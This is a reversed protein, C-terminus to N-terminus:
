LTKAHARHPLAHTLSCTVSLIRFTVFASYYCVKLRLKVSHAYRVRLCASSSVTLHRRVSRSVFYGGEVVHDFIVRVRMRIKQLSLFPRSHMLRVISSGSYGQLLANESFFARFKQGENGTLYTTDNTLCVFM